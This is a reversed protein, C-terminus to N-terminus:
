FDINEFVDSIVAEIIEQSFGGNQEDFNGEWIENEGIKEIVLSTLWDGNPMGSFTWDPEDWTAEIDEDKTFDCVCGDNIYEKIKEKLEEQNMGWYTYNWTYKKEKMIVEEEANNKQSVARM